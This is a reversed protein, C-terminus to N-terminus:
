VFISMPGTKNSADLGREANRTGTICVRCIIGYFINLVKMCM